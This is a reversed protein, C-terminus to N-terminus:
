RNVRADIRRGGKGGWGGVGVGVCVQAFKHKVGDVRETVTRARTSPQWKTNRQKSKKKKDTKTTAKKISYAISLSQTTGLVKSQKPKVTVWARLCRKGAPVRSSRNECFNKPSRNALVFIVGVDIAYGCKNTAQLKFPKLM